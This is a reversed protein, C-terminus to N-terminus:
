VGMRVKGRRRPLSFIVLMSKLVGGNKSTGMNESHVNCAVDRCDSQPLKSTTGSGRGISGFLGWFYYKKVMMFRKGRYFDVIKKGKKIKNCSTKIAFVRLFDNNKVVGFRKDRYFIVIKLRKKNENEAQTRNHSFRRKEPQLRMHIVIM